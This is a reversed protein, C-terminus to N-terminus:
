FIKLCQRFNIKIIKWLHLVTRIRFRHVHLKAIAIKETYADITSPHTKLFSFDIYFEKRLMQLKQLFRLLPLYIFLLRFQIQILRFRFWFWFCDRSVSVRFKIDQKPRLYASNPQKALIEASVSIYSISEASIM